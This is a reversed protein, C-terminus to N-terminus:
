IMSTVLGVMYFYHLLNLYLEQNKRGTNALSQKMNINM